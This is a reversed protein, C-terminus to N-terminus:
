INNLQANLEDVNVMKYIMPQGNKFGEKLRGTIKDLPPMKIKYKNIYIRARTRIKVDRIYGYRRAGMRITDSIINNGM